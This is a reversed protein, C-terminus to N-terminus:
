DDKRMNALMRSLEKTSGQFIISNNNVVKQPADEKTKQRTLTAKKDHLDMLQANMDSLNKMLTGVVEFARPSDSQKALELAYQLADNGQQLLGYMNSRAHNHDTEIQESDEKEASVVVSGKSDIVEMPETGFVKSLSNDLKELPTAFETETNQETM